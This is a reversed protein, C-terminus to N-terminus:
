YDFLKGVEMEEIHYSVRGYLEGDKYVDADVYICPTGCILFWGADKYELRNNMNGNNIREKIGLIASEAEKYSAFCGINNRLDDAEGRKYFRRTVIYVNKM